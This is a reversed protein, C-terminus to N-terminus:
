AGQGRERKYAREIREGMAAADDYSRKTRGPLKWRAMTVADVIDVQCEGERTNNPPIPAGGVWGLREERDRHEREIM